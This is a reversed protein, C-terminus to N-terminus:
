EYKRVSRIVKGIITIENDVHLDGNPKGLIWPEKFQPQDSNSHLWAVGDEDFKLIKCTHERLDHNARSVIVLDGHKWEYDNFPIFRCILQTNPFFELNMSLGEPTVAFLDDVGPDGAARDYEVFETFDPDYHSEELWVGQAVKGLNRIKPSEMIKTFGDFPSYVDSESRIVGSRALMEEVSVKFLDAMKNARRANMPVKGNIVKNAVSREVGLAHAVMEDTIKLAKKREKFWDVDM